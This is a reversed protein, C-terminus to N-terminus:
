MWSRKQHQPPKGFVGEKGQKFPKSLVSAREKRKWNRAFFLFCLTLTLTDNYTHIVAKDRDWLLSLYFWERAVCNSSLRFTKHFSAVALANCPSGWCKSRKGFLQRYGNIKRPSYLFNPTYDRAWPFLVTTSILVWVVLTRSLHPLVEM